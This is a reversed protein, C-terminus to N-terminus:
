LSGKWRDNIIRIGELVLDPEIFADLKAHAFILTALGGTAVVKTPESLETWIRKVLGEVMEVTGFLIGSQISKETSCGIVKQPFALEVKPLKAAQHHLSAAATELGPAILGGLYDGNAAVIDFTTATGFDIIITPGGFKAFAAVANCLRDNGVQEPNDYRVKLWPVAEVSIILPKCTFRHEAARAYVTTMEPVVSSIAVGAIQGVEINAAKLFQNLLVWVEDATRAVRTAMRWSDLLREGQFAGAVTHTNGIDIALFIDGSNSMQNESSKM